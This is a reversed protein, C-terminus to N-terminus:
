STPITDGCRRYASECRIAPWDARGWCFGDPRPRLLWTVPAGSATRRTDGQLRLALAGPGEGILDYTVRTRVTGDFVTMPQPWDFIVTDPARTVSLRAPNVRCTNGTGDATEYSAAMDEATLAAAPPPSLALAAACCLLARWM